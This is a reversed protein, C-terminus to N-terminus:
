GPNSAIQDVIVMRVREFATKGAPKAQGSFHPKAPENWKDIMEATRALVESHDCPFTVDVVELDVKPHRDCIYKATQAVAGYTTSDAPARILELPCLKGSSCERACLNQLVLHLGSM